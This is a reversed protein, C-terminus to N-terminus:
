TMCIATCACGLRLNYGSSFVHICLPFSVRASTYVARTWAGPVAWLTGSDNRAAVGTRGVEGGRADGTDLWSALSALACM